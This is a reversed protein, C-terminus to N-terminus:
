SSSRGNRLHNVLTGLPVRLAAEDDSVTYIAVEACQADHMLRTVTQWGSPTEVSDGLRIDEVEVLNPGTTGVAGIRAIMAGLETAAAPTMDFGERQDVVMSVATDEAISGDPDDWRSLVVYVEHENDKEDRFLVIEEAGAHRVTGDTDDFHDGVCWSPCPLPICQAEVVFDPEFPLRWGNDLVFWLMASGDAPDTGDEVAVVKHPDLLREVGNEDNLRNSIFVGPQIDKARWDIMRPEAESQGQPSSTVVATVATTAEEIPIWIPREADMPAVPQGARIGDAGTAPREITVTM